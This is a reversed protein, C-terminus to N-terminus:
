FKFFFLFKVYKTKISQNRKRRESEINNKETSIQKEDSRKLKRIMEGPECNLCTVTGSHIHLLLSLNNGLDLKDGHSIFYKTNM